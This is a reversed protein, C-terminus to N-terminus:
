CLPTTSHVIVSHVTDERKAMEGKNVSHGGWMQCTDGESRVEVAGMRGRHSRVTGHGQQGQSELTVGDGAHDHEEM